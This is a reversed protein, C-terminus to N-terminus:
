PHTSKAKKFIEFISDNKYIDIVNPNWLFGTLSHLFYVVNPTFDSHLYHKRIIPNYNLSQRWLNSKKLGINAKVLDYITGSFIVIDYNEQRERRLFESSSYYEDYSVKVNCKKEIDSVVEPYDLYGWWTLINVTPIKNQVAQSPSSVTMLVILFFVEILLGLCGKKNMIDEMGNLVKTKGTADKGIM